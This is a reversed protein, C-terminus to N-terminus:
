ASAGNAAVDQKSETYSDLSQNFINRYYQADKGKDDGAPVVIGLMLKLVEENNAARQIDQQVAQVKEPTMENILKEFIEDQEELSGAYLIKDQTSGFLGLLRAIDPSLHDAIMGAKIHQLDGFITNEYRNFIEDDNLHPVQGLFEKQLKGYSALVNRKEIISLKPFMGSTDIGFGEEVIKVFRTLALARIDTAENVGNEEFDAKLKRHEERIKAAKEKGVIAPDPASNYMAGQDTFGPSWSLSKMEGALDKRTYSGWDILRPQSNANESTDFVINAPKIDNHIGGRAHMISLSSGIKSCQDNILRARQKAADIDALDLTERISGEINQRLKEIHDEADIEVLDSTDISELDSSAIFTEVGSKGKVEPVILIASSFEKNGALVEKASLTNGDKDTVLMASPLTLYEMPAYPVVDKLDQAAILERAFGAMTSDKMQSEFSHNKGSALTGKLAEKVVYRNAPDEKDVFISISGFGGKGASEGSERVYTKGDMEFQMVKRVKKEDLATEVGQEIFKANLLTPEIEGVGEVKTLPVVEMDDISIREPPLDHEVQATQPPGSFKEIQTTGDESFVEKMDSVDLENTKDFNKASPSRLEEDTFVETDGGVPILDSMDLESTPMEVEQTPVDPAMKRELNVERTKDEYPSIYDEPDLESTPMEVEQTPVDPAMKGELNVERTKDDLNVERTLDGEIPLVQVTDEKYSPDLRLTPSDAIDTVVKKFGKGLQEADSSVKELPTIYEKTDAIQAQNLAREAQVIDGQIDTQVTDVREEARGILEKAFVDPASEKSYEITDVAQERTEEPGRKTDLPVEVTPIDDQRTGNNNGNGTAM